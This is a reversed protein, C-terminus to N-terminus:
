RNMSFEILHGLAAKDCFTSVFNCYLMHFTKSLNLLIKKTEKKDEVTEFNSFIKWINENLIEFVFRTIYILVFSMKTFLGCYSITIQIIIESLRIAEERQSIVLRCKILLWLLSFFLFM